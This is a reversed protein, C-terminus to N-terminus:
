RGLVFRLAEELAPHRYPYDTTVARGPVVRQSALVTEDAMEGFLMRLAPAPAPLVAPRGLVRGLTAAFEANTVAGPAVANFAGGLAETALAHHILGVADDISIWSMWQRGSGVRGGLGLRFIPLLKGLAGGAPSLVAGFRPTAVRIGADRAPATASEWARVVQVLFDDAPGPSSDDGLLEDGRNGYIGVASASVLVRPPRGLGALTRALLATGQTRSERIRQKRGPTWRGAALNEGALHVVADVGELAAADLRGAAPDWGIEAERPERRVLRTVRHGGTTLFATLARGLLGSAGTIVV